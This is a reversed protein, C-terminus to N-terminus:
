GGTRRERSRTTTAFDSGADVAFPYYDAGSASILARPRAEAPLAAIAEVLVRTGEVRSERLRQKQRADMAAAIPEGALHVVAATGALAASWPGPTQLDAAVATVDGLQQGAREADRSLVTVAHGASRLAAVLPAGIFGTAGTVAVAGARM